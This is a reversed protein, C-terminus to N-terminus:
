AFHTSQIHSIKAPQALRYFDRLERVMPIAIRGPPFRNELSRCYRGALNSADRYRGLEEAQLDGHFRPDDFLRKLLSVALDSDPQEALLIRASIYKDIEAQMELEMLTVCKDITANWALYNFHSIGELVTCFDALNRHGLRHRPDASQLRELLKENLYLAVNLEDERQLILLSEETERAPRAIQWYNLMAADTVLYDHVDLPLDIGYVGGLLRQLDKLLM